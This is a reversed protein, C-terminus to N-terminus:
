RKTYGDLHDRVLNYRKFAWLADHARSVQAGPTTSYDDRHARVWDLLDQRSFKDPMAEFMERRYATLFSSMPTAEALVPEEAPVGPDKKLLPQLSSRLAPVQQALTELNEQLPPASPLYFLVRQWAHKEEMLPAIAQNLTSIRAEAYARATDAPSTM